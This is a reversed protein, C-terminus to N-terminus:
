FGFRKLIADVEKPSLLNDGMVRFELSKYTDDDSIHVEFGRENNDYSPTLLKYKDLIKDLDEKIRTLGKDLELTDLGVRVFFKSDPNNTLLVDENSSGYNGMDEDDAISTEFITGRCKTLVNSSCNDLVLIYDGEITIYNNERKMPECWIEMDEDINSIDIVFEDSYGGFESPELKDILRIHFGLKILEKILDRSEEYLAVISINKEPNASNNYLDLVKSALNAFNTYTIKKM